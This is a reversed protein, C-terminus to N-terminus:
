TLKGANDYTWGHYFCRFHSQNGREIECIITGRHRCRNMVLRPVGDDGRVAIIPQRGIRRAIFDGPKPIESEHLVYTWTSHFIKAVEREFIAPSTFIESDVKDDRIFQSAWGGAASLPEVQQHLM